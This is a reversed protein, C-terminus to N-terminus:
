VAFSIPLVKRNKEELHRFLQAWKAGQETLLFYKDEQRVWGRKRLGVVIHYDPDMDRLQSRSLGAPFRHLHEQMLLLLRVARQDGKNKPIIYM